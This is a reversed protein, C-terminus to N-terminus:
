NKINLKRRKLIVIGLLIMAALMILAVNTLNNIGYKQAIIGMLYNILMNGTLAIVFVISFATGSFKIFRDGVFGLM